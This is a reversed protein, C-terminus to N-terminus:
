VRENGPREPDDLRMGNFYIDPNIFFNNFLDHVIKKKENKKRHKKSERQCCSTFRVQSSIFLVEQQM